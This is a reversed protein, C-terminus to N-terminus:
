LSLLSIFWSSWSLLAKFFCCICSSDLLIRVLSSVSSSLLSFLNLGFSVAVPLLKLGFLLKFSFNLFFQTQCSVFESRRSPLEMVSRGSGGLMSREVYRNWNFSYRSCSILFLCCQVYISVNLASRNNSGCSSLSGPKTTPKRKVKRKTEKSILWFSFIYGRLLALSWVLMKLSVIVESTKCTFSNFAPTRRKNSRRSPLQLYLFVFLFPLLLSTLTAPLAAHGSPLPLLARNRQNATLLCLAAM